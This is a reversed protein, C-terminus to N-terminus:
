SINTIYVIWFVNQQASSFAVPSTWAKYFKVFSLRMTMQRISQNCFLLLEPSWQFLILPTKILFILFSDATWFYCVEPLRWQGIPASQQIIFCRNQSIYAFVAPHLIVDWYAHIAKYSNDSPQQKKQPMNNHHQHDTPSRSLETQKVVAALSHIIM